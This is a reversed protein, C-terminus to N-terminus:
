GAALLVDAGDSHFPEATQAVLFGDLRQIVQQFFLFFFGNNGGNEVRKFCKTFVDGSIEGGFRQKSICFFPQFAFKGGAESPKIEAQYGGGFPCVARGDIGLDQLPPQHQCFLQFVGVGVRQELAIHGQQVFFAALVKGQKHHLAKDRLVGFVATYVFGGFVRHFFGGVTQFVVLSPELLVGFVMGFQGVDRQFLNDFADFAFFEAFIEARRNFAFAHEGQGAVRLACRRHFHQLVKQFVVEQAAGLDFGQETGHGGAVIGQDDLQQETQGAAVAGSGHLLQGFGQNGADGLAVMPRGVFEGVAGDGGGSEVFVADQREFVAAAGQAGIHVVGVFEYEFVFFAFGDFGQGGRALAVIGRQDFFGFALKGVGFFLVLLDYLHLGGAQVFGHAGFAGPAGGVPEFIQGGVRNHFAQNGAHYPDFEVGFAEDQLGEAGVAAAAQEVKVVVFDFERGFAVDLGGVANQHACFVGCAPLRM